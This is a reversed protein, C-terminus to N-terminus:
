KELFKQARCFHDWDNPKCISSPKLNELGKEAEYDLKPILESIISLANLLQTTQSYSQFEKNSFVDLKIGVGIRM